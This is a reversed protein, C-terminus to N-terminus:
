SCKDTSVSSTTYWSTAMSLICLLVLLLVTVGFIAFSYALHLYRFVFSHSSFRHLCCRHRPCLCLFFCLGLGGLSSSYCKALEVVSRTGYVEVLYGVSFFMAGSIISHGVMGIQVLHLLGTSSSSSGVLTVLLLLLYIVAVLSSAELLYGSCVLFRCYCM